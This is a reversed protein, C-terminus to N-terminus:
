VRHHHCELNEQKGHLIFIFFYFLKTYISQVDCEHIKNHLNFFNKPIREVKM